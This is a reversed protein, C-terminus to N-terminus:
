LQREIINRKAIQALIHTCFMDKQQLEILTDNDLPLEILNEKPDNEDNSSVDQTAEINSVELTPLADFTYYGFEYGEPETDQQIQPDIDILQSM